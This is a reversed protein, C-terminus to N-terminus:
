KNGWGPTDVFLTITPRLHPIKLRSLTINNQRTNKENNVIQSSKANHSNAMENIINCLKSNALTTASLM